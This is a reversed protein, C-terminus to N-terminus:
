FSFDKQASGFIYKREGMLVELDLLIKAGSFIEM